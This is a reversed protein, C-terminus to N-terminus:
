HYLGTMGGVWSALAPPGSIWPRDPSSRNLNLVLTPLKEFYFTLYLFLYFVRKLMHSFLLTSTSSYLEPKLGWYQVMLCTNLQSKWVLINNRLLTNVDNLRFEWSTTCHEKVDALSFVYRDCQSCHMFALFQNKEEMQNYHCSAPVCWMKGLLKRAAKAGWLLFPLLKAITGWKCYLRGRGRHKWKGRILLFCM